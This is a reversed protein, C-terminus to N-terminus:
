SEMCGLLSNAHEMTDTQDNSEGTSCVRKGEKGVKVMIVVRIRARKKKEKTWLWSMTTRNKKKENRKIVCDNSKM